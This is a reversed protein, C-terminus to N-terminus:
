RIVVFKAAATQGLSSLRVVYAGAPLDTLVAQHRGSAMDQAMRGVARGSLDFVIMETWADAPLDFRIAASSAAPNPRAGYLSFDLGEDEEIGVSHRSITVGDLIATKSSDTTSLIARYQILSDGNEVLGSMSAPSSTSAVARSSRNSSWQWTTLM